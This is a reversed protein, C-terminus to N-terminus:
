EELLSRLMWATQEHVAIRQTLLDATPEDNAKDVCPFLKRATRAVAEHGQALIKVMELAKPPQAPTDPLSALKSFAAYGAIITKGIRFGPMKYAIVEEADPLADALEACLRVLLPRLDQPAEAIYADHDAVM